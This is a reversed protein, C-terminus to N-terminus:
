TLNTLVGTSDGFRNEKVGMRQLMSLYLNCLPTDRNYKVHRGPTIMGNGKGALVIPLDNHNHRNGDGIGCGAMVMCHDLLTGDAEKISKLRKIFHGFQEM